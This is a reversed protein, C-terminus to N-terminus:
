TKTLFGFLVGVLVGIIVGVAAQATTHGEVLPLPKQHDKKLLNNLAKGQEGVAYRVHIADYIVILTMAVSLAFLGSDFGAMMGLYTTMATMSASHGSPMGGSRM